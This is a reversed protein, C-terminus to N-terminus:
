DKNMLIGLLLRRREYDKIVKIRFYAQDESDFESRFCYTCSWNHRIKDFEPDWYTFFVIQNVTIMQGCDKCTNIDSM